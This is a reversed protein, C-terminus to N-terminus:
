GPAGGQLTGQARQAERPGAGAMVTRIFKGAADFRTVRAPKQEAVYVEGGRTIALGLINGIAGPSGKRQGSPTTSNCVGPRVAQAQGASALLLSCLCLLRFRMGVGLRPFLLSPTCTPVLEQFLM